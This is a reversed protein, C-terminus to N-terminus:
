NKLIGFKEKIIFTKYKKNQITYEYEKVEKYILSVKFYETELNEYKKIDKKVDKKIM